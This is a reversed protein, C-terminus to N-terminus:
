RIRRGRSITMEGGNSSVTEVFDEQIVLMELTDATTQGVGRVVPALVYREANTPHSLLQRQMHYVTEDPTIKKNLYDYIRTRTLTDKELDLLYTMEYQGELKLLKGDKYFHRETEHTVITEASAGACSLLFAAALALTPKSIPM